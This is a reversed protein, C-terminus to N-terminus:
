TKFRRSLDGLRDAASGVQSVSAIVDRAGKEALVSSSAVDVISGTIGQVLRSSDAVNRVIENTTVSQEEM